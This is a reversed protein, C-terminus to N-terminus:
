LNRVPESYRKQVPIGFNGSESTGKQGTNRNHLFVFFVQLKKSSGINVSKGFNGTESSYKQGTKRFERIWFIMKSRNESIGQNLLDNKISKGFNRSESIWNQGIKWFNRIRDVTKIWNASIVSHKCKQIEQSFKKNSFINM